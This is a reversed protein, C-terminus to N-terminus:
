SLLLMLILMLRGHYDSVETPGVLAMPLTASATELGTVAPDPATVQAGAERAIVRRVDAVGCEVSGM